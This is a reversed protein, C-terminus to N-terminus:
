GPYPLIAPLLDIFLLVAEFGHRMPSIWDLTQSGMAAPAVRQNVVIRRGASPRRSLLLEM